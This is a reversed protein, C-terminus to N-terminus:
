ELAGGVWGDAPQKGVMHGVKMDLESLMTGQSERKFEWRQIQLLSRFVVAKSLPLALTPIDNAHWVCTRTEM